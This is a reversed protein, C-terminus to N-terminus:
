RVLTVRETRRESGTELRLLYAGSAADRGAGDKGDWVADHRGAERWGDEVVRVVRGEANVVAVFVRGARPLDYAFRAAGRTPNPGEALLALAAPSSAGTGAVVGTGSQVTFAAASSFPGRTEGDDAFARWSYAGDALPSSVTWATTGGGSPIGDASAVVATLLSDSYVRFAYALPQSEPDTADTVTLTPTAGVTAGGIPSLAVPASPALNGSGPVVIRVDDIGGEVIDGTAAGDAARVRIRMSATLTTLSDLRASLANWGSGYTVDGISVLTVPYTAGGDNSVDIRFYDGTPDDGPDRQGHTWALDLRAQGASSLDIVPSRTAAVGNDVDDVGESSNQGTILAYIGPDPTADNGPQYATPNPDIRVWAGASATHSPDQTWDNGSEFDQAYLVQLSGVTLTVADSSLYGGSAAFTVTLAIERGQPCAPDVALAFPASLARTEGAAFSGLPVQAVLLSVYPDSTALTATGGSLGGTLGVNSVTLTVEGYEGPDLRGNATGGTDATVPAAAVRLYPGAIQTLYLHASLNEALLGAIESEAPWFGSGGIETTYGLIKPHNTTEGYSWDFAVGSANYLIEGPQGYQYGPESAMVSAIARLLSDDPAHVSADYGWPFLVMAAVSHFSQHTALERSDIFAEMAQVEPESNPAPGRYTDDSTVPSSGLGGWQYSYNRNLDVGFTGDGNNRRNKRWMGGGAPNTTENYVYGDPNVVPVFWIERNDVLFTALPDTGYSSALYDLYDLTMEVTMVERAHTCGDFLVEGEDEDVDPNDSVKIAWIPRGEVSTGLSFKDTTISPFALAISDLFATAESYTHFAGFNPGLARAAYAAELDPVTVAVRYGMEALRRDIEPTSIARYTGAEDVPKLFEIDPIAALVRRADDLTPLTVRIEEYTKDAAAAPRPAVAPAALLALLAAALAAPALRHVLPTRRPM